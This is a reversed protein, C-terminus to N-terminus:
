LGQCDSLTVNCRMQAPAFLYAIATVCVVNSPDSEQAGLTSKARYCYRQGGTLASDTYTLGTVKSATLRAWNQGNDTSRDIVYGDPTSGETPANWELIHPRVVVQALAIGAILALIAVTLAYKVLLSRALTNQFEGLKGSAATNLPRYYHYYCLDSPGGLKLARAASHAASGVLCDWYHPLDGPDYDPSESADNPGKGGRSM